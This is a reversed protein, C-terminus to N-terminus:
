QSSRVSRYLVSLWAVAAGILAGIVGAIIAPWVPFGGVYASGLLTHCVFLSPGDQPRPSFGHWSWPCSWPAFLVYGALLGVVLALVTWFVSPRARLPSLMALAVAVLLLPLFGISVVAILGLGFAVAVARWYARGALRSIHVM